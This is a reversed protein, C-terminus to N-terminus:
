LSGLRYPLPTGMRLTCRPNMVWPPVKQCAASEECQKVLIQLEELADSPLDIAPNMLHTVLKLRMNTTMFERAVEVTQEPKVHGITRLLNEPTEELVRIFM